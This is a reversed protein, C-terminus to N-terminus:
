GNDKDETKYLEIGASVRRQEMSGGFKIAADMCTQSCIQPNTPQGLCGCFSGDCCFRPEYDPMPKQCIECKPVKM